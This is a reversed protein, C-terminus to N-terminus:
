ENLIEVKEWKDTERNYQKLIRAPNGGAISYPPISKIVTSGAAVISHKGITVGATISVNAGIWVEDEIVVLETLVKQARISTHIDKYGHNLGSVVVNQALLVEKGITVPGILTTSIGILSNDGIIIPGVNNNITAYDEIIAYKGLQFINSPLLDMRASRRIIAGKAKAHIIPNLINRVWWRPRYDNKPILLWHAFSKLRPNAKVVEKLKNM